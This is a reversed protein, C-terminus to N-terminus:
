IELTGEENSTIRGVSNIWKENRGGKSNNMLWIVIAMVGKGDHM